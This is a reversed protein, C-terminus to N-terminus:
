RAEEPARDGHQPCERNGECDSCEYKERWEAGYKVCANLHARDSGYEARDPAGDPFSPTPQIHFRVREKVPTKVIELGFFLKAQKPHEALFEVLPREGVSRHPVVAPTSVGLALAAERTKRQGYEVAVIKLSNNLAVFVNNDSTLEFASPVRGDPGRTSREIYTAAEDLVKALAALEALTRNGDFFCPEAMLKGDREFVQVYAGSDPVKFTKGLNPLKATPKVKAM